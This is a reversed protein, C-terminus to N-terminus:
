QKDGKKYIRYLEYAVAMDISKQNHGYRRANSRTDTFKKTDESKCLSDFYNLQDESVSCGYVTYMINEM